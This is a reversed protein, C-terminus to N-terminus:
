ESPPILARCAHTHLPTLFPILIHVYSIFDGALLSAMLKLELLMVEAAGLIRSAPSKM